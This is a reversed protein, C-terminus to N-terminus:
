KLSELVEPTFPNIGKKLQEIWYKRQEILAIDSDSHLINGNEDVLVFFGGYYHDAFYQFDSISGQYDGTLALALGRSDRIDADDPELIVALECYKLVQEAYEQLSGHWCLSNLTNADKIFLKNEEAKKIAALASVIDRKSIQVISDSIATLFADKNDNSIQVRMKMAQEYLGLAEEIDGINSKEFILNGTVEGVVRFSEGTPDKVADDKELEAKVKELATKVRDPDNSNLLADKVIPKVYEVDIPLNVCVAQYPLVDGIYKNWEERTLNRAVHMCAFDILEEPSYMRIQVTGDDSGSAAYRGDSSFSISNVWNNYSMRAVEYGTKAEWVRASGSVCRSIEVQDCGASIVYRSDPSFSVARVVGEYTMRSVEKGTTVNWVRASNDLSGSAIYKGDSSIAISTVAGDHIMRVIEQRTVVEWLRVTNDSSGSVIYKGDSSFAVSNVVGEHIVRFIEQGTEAEWVRVTNDSSGSVIYKGDPSFALSFVFGNHPMRTIERGTM